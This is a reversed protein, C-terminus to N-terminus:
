FYQSTFFNPRYHTCSLFHLRQHLLTCMIFMDSLQHNTRILISNIHFPSRLKWVSVFSTPKPSMIEDICSVRITKIRYLANREYRILTVVPTGTREIPHTSGKQTYFNFLHFRKLLFLVYIPSTVSLRPYTPARHPTM